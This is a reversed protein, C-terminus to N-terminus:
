KISRKNDKGDRGKGGSREEEIKEIRLKKKSVDAKVDTKMGYNEEGNKKKRRDKKEKRKGRGMVGSITQIM